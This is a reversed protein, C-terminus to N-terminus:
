PYYFKKTINSMSEFSNNIEKIDLKKRKEDYLSTSELDEAELLILSSHSDENLIKLNELEKEDFGSLKVFIIYVHFLDQLLAAVNKLNSADKDTIETSNKCEGIVIEPKGDRCKRLIIFDTECNISNEPSELKTATTYLYTGISSSSYIIQELMMIVPIAGEQNNDKGLLGSRRYRWDRNKLQTNCDFTNGCYECNIDNKLDNLSLWFDLKCNPCKFELGVRFVKKKILCDLVKQPTLKIDEVFLNKYKLFFEGNKQRIFEIAKKRTFNEAVKYKKILKRLGAVRFVRCSDLGEMQKILHKCLLGAQSPTAKINKINFIETILNDIKLAHIRLVHNTINTIIGISRPEVRYNNGYYKNLEPLYLFNLTENDRDRNFLLRIKELDLSIVMRQFDPIPEVFKEPLQLTFSTRGDKEHTIALTDKELFYMQIPRVNLGNWINEDDIYYNLEDGFETHNSSDTAKHWLSIKKKSLPHQPISNIKETYKKRLQEFRESLSPDYFFIELGAAKLNWYSILDEFDKHNGIYFGQPHQTYNNKNAINHRPELNISTLGYPTLKDFFDSPHEQNTTIRKIQANLYQELLEGYNISVIENEPYDGFTMLFIDKLSDNEEWKYTELEKNMEPMKNTYFIDKIPHSVDLILPIRDNGRKSFLEDLDPYQLYDFEKIFQKTEDTNSVPYLFDVGFTSILQKALEKRNVPIVPNFCGGWFVNAIKIARRLGEFDQNEVCFGIKLPRYRVKLNLTESM